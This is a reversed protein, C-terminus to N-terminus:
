RDEPEYAHVDDAPPAGIALVTVPEDAEAPNYAFQPSEPDVVFLQDTPVEYSGEPTEVFLTGSLVYLAEQQTDHYHYALPLEEGPKAHFRNIRMTELEGAESLRRCESPRDSEPDVEQPDVVRYGM